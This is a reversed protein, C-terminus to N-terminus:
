QPREWSTEQTAANYFYTAGSVPDCTQAWGSPLLQQQDRSCDEEEEEAAAAAPTAAERKLVLAAGDAATADAVAMPPDRPAEGDDGSRRAGEELDVEENSTSNNIADAAARDAVDLAATVRDCDAGALSGPAERSTENTKTNWWYITGDESTVVQWDEKNDRFQAETDPYDDLDGSGGKLRKAPPPDYNAPRDYETEGGQVAAGNVKMMEVLADADARAATDNAVPNPDEHAWRINLIEQHDLHNNSMAERAFEATSRYRFRVFAISLRSVLNVNEVEGWEGFHRWLAAELAAPDAYEAKVLNGIYLTRCPKMIAGVGTMDDRFDKHRERGFVDRTEDLSFRELDKRVPIRHFYRCEEGLACSGRAFFLCFSAQARSRKMKDAKTYGADTSLVCRTEAAERNTAGKDESWHDGIYKGWYINYEYAGELVTNKSAIYEVQKRAPRKLYEVNNREYGAAATSGAAGRGFWGSSHPTPGMELPREWQTEGTMTNHYYLHKAKPDFIEKWDSGEETRSADEELGKPKKKARCRVCRLKTANNETECEDCIWNKEFVTYSSGLGGVVGVPVMKRAPGSAQSSSVSSQPFFNQPKELAGAANLEQQTPPLPIITGTEPM